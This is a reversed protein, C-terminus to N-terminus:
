NSMCPAAYSGSHVPTIYTFFHEFLGNVKRLVHSNVSPLLREPTLLTAPGETLTCRKVCVPSDVGPLLGEFTLLAAFGEPM